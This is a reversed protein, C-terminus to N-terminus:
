KCNKLLSLLNLLECNNGASFLKVHTEHLGVPVAGSYIYGRRHKFDGPKSIRSQNNLECMQHKHGSTKAQLNYSHCTDNAMCKLACESYDPVKFKIFQHGFLAYGTLIFAFNTKVYLFEFRVKMGSPKNAVCTLKTM